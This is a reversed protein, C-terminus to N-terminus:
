FQLLMTRIPKESGINIIWMGILKGIPSEVINVDVHRRKM